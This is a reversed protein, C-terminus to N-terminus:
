PLGLRGKSNLTERAPSKSKTTVESFWTFRLGCLIYRNWKKRWLIIMYEQHVQQWAQTQGVEAHGYFVFFLCFFILIKKMIFFSIQITQVGKQQASGRSDAAIFSIWRLLRALCIFGILNQWESLTRNHRGGRRKEKTSVKERHDGAKEKM